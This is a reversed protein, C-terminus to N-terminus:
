FRGVAGLGGGAGFSVPAVHVEPKTSTVHHEQTVSTGEPVFFSGITLLAGATQFIGATIIAARSTTEHDGCPHDSCGRNGLDIWPGVLPILLYGDTDRSSALGAIASSAYSVALVAVGTRLMFKNPRHEVSKEAYQDSSPPAYPAATTTTTSSPSPPPPQVTVVQAPPPPQPQPAPQGQTTVTTSTVDALVSTAHTLAAAAALVSIITRANSM